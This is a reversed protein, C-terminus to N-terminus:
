VGLFGVGLFNDQDASLQFVSYAAKIVVVGMRLTRLGDDVRDVRM